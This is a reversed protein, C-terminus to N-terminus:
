PDQNIDSIDSVMKSESDLIHLVQDLQNLNNEEFNIKSQKLTLKCNPCDVVDSGKMEKLMEKNVRENDSEMLDLHKEMCQDVWEYFCKAHFLHKCPPRALRDNLEFQSMCISCTDSANRASM